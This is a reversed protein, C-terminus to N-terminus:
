RSTRDTDFSTYAKGNSRVFVSPMDGAHTGHSQGAKTYHGDASLFWTTPLDDNDAKCGKGTTDVDDAHIHFGHFANRTVKSNKKFEATVRVHNGEKRFTVTGVKDGDADRMTAHAKNTAASAPVATAM